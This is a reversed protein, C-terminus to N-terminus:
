SSLLRRNRVPRSPFTLSLKCLVTLRMSRNCGRWAGYTFADGPAWSAFLAGTAVVSRPLSSLRLLRLERTEIRGFPVAEYVDLVEDALPRLMDRLRFFM